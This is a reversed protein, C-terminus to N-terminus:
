TGAIEAPIFQRATNPTGCGRCIVTVKGGEVFVYLDKYKIRLTEKAKDTHALIAKCTTCLWKHTDTRRTKYDLGQDDTRKREDKNQQM